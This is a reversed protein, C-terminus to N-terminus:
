ENQDRELILPSESRGLNEFCKQVVNFHTKKFTERMPMGGCFDHLYHATERFIRDLMRFVLERRGEVSGHQTLHGILAEYDGDGPKATKANIYLVDFHRKLEERWKDELAKKREEIKDSKRYNIILSFNFGPVEDILKRFSDLDSEGPIDANGIFYFWAGKEQEGCYRFIDEDHVAVEGGDDAAAGLGPMDCFDVGKELIPNNLKVVLHGKGVSKQRDAMTSLQVLASNVTEATSFPIEQLPYSDALFLSENSSFSYKVPRASWDGNRVPAIKEGLLANLMTSKGVNTRGLFVLQLPTGAMSYLRLGNIEDAASKLFAHVRDPAARHDSFLLLCKDCLNFFEDNM